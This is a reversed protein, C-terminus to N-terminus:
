QGLVGDRSVRVPAFGEDPSPRTTRYRMRCRQQLPDSVSNTIPPPLATERASELQSNVLENQQSGWVEPPQERMYEVWQRTGDLREQRNQDHKAALRDSRNSDSM